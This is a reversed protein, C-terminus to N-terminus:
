TSVAAVLEAEDWTVAVARYGEARYYPGRPGSARVNAERGISPNVYYVTVGRGTGYERRLASSPYGLDTRRPAGLDAGYLPGSFTLLRDVWTRGGDRSLRGEIRYPPARNGYTLLAAGNTLLLLDAPHQRPGTIRVPASWTWGGDASRTSWLAEEPPDSRPVALLDGDPLVLLGTENMGPAILSPEDWTVGGDRSRVLYSGPPHPAARHRAARAAGLRAYDFLYIPALLTGDAQTVIKGYPAGRRCAELRLPVPKAWTLGADASRTVMVEIPLEGVFQEPRYYTGDANYGGHRQYTLILSGDGAVGLAFERDDRDSDAVVSPSSWTRGTDLSRISEIRGARGLHGAGGRLVAVVVGDPAGALVPFLGGDRYAVTERTQGLARVDVPDFPAPADM